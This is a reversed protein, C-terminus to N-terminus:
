VKAGACDGRCFRLGRSAGFCGWGQEEAGRCRQMEASEASASYRSQVGAGKCMSRQWQVIVQVIVASGRVSIQM